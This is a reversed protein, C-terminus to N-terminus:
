YQNMNKIVIDEKDIDSNSKKSISAIFIDGYSGSALKRKINYKEM